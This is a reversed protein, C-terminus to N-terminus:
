CENLNFRKKSREIRDVLGTNELTLSRDSNQATTNDVHRRTRAVTPFFCIHVHLARIHHWFEALVISCPTGVIDVVVVWLRQCPLVLM